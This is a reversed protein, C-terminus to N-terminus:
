TLMGGNVRLVSGTVYAAEESSLYVAAAAIEAPTAPRGLPVAALMATRAAEPLEKTMDTEVFGPAIANVTINRKAYEKALSKAAGILGAKSAAYATQGANGSEGVVSSVFIVRGKKPRLMLKISARAVALAGRLNVALTEDLAEEKQQIFLGDRSIGANSVVIDFRGLRKGVEAIKAEATVTDAVDFGLTEGKGGREVIGALVSEAEAQNRGFHVIVYAGQGALAEAIARGIGRSGGTVLAVKEDLRFMGTASM